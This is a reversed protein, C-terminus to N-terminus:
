GIEPECTFIVDVKAQMDAQVTMCVQPCLFIKNNEVYYNTSGCAAANQVKTFTQPTGTGMPTYNVIIKNFMTFGAPPPPITFECAARAGAVVGQAIKSFVTNFYDPHCVPFRLGGTQISLPQYNVGPRVGSDCTQLEQPETPLYGDALNAKERLGIISHFTYNRTAASTGFVPPQLAFLQSEFTNATITSDDDTIVLFAKQADPRLWQRYGADTFSNPDRTSYRSIALQLEDRSGVAYDYQFFRSTNTPRAPPPTCTANGSLPATICIRQQASSGNKSLLIVRYDLGGDNLIAAFNNNINSEVGIIEETMSCSNDIIMIIDVPKTGISAQSSVAACGSDPDFIGGT